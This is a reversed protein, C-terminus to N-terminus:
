RAESPWHLIVNLQRPASGEDRHIMLLRKGDPAVSYSQFRDDIHFDSRGVVKRAPGFIGNPQMTVSVLADRTVFYLERGDPSWMPRVGGGSSVPIRRAGGPVVGCLNRAAGIRGVRVRDLPTRRAGTLVTRGMRQVADSQDAVAERGALAGLSGPRDHTLDRHLAADRRRCVAYPFQESPRKLLVEAARSGDAPQSYIDWDGGRNSAFVIRRGDRSWM